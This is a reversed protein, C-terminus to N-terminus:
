FSFDGEGLTRYHDKVNAPIEENTHLSRSSPPAHNGRVLLEPDKSTGDPEGLPISLIQLASHHM